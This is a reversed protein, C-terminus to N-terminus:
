WHFVKSVGNIYAESIVALNAAASHAGTIAVNNQNWIQYEQLELRKSNPNTAGSAALVTKLGNVKARLQERLDGSSTKAYFSAPLVDFPENVMEMFQKAEPHSTPYALNNVHIEAQTLARIAVALTNHMTAANTM